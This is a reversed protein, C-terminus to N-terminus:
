IRIDEKIEEKLISYNESYFDKKEKTLNNIRHTVPPIKSYEKHLIM